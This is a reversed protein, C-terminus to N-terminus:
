IRQINPHRLDLLRHLNKARLALVNTEELSPDLKGCLNRTGIVGLDVDLLQLALQNTEAQGRVVMKAGLVGSHVHQVGQIIEPGSITDLRDILAAVHDIALCPEVLKLQYGETDLTLSVEEGLVPGLALPDGGMENRSVIVLTPVNLTFTDVDALVQFVGGFSMASLVQDIESVHLMVHDKSTRLLVGDHTEDVSATTRRVGGRVRHLLDHLTVLTPLLRADKQHTVVVLGLVAIGTFHMHYLGTAGAVLGAEHPLVLELGM